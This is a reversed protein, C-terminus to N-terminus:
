ELLAHFSRVRSQKYRRTIEILCRCRKGDLEAVVLQQKSNFSLGGPKDVGKVMWVPEGLQTPHITAFVQFPSGAIHTGNVRVILSHRGRVEPAYTVEYVGREKSTVRAHTISDNVVSKLEAQVVQKERCFQGNQYVTHVTFQASKDVGTAQTGFGEVTCKAPDALLVIVEANKQCLDSIGEACAM